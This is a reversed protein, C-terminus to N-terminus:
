ASRSGRLELLQEPSDILADPRAAKLSERDAYGWTVAISYIGASRAAEIDRVEDGVYAVNAAVLSTQALVKRLRAAKGFLSTGCALREFLNLRHRQLFAEVNDRSNSSLILCRIGSGNLAVLAESMGRFPELRDIQERLRVRVAHVIRPVKWMPVGYAQIAERPGMRRLRTVDAPTVSPVGFQEAVLNYLPIVHQM